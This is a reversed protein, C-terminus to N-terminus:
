RLYQPPVPLRVSMRRVTDTEEPEVRMVVVSM